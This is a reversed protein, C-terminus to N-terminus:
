EVPWRTFTFKEDVVAEAEIKSGFMEIADNVYERRIVKITKRTVYVVESNEHDYVVTVDM